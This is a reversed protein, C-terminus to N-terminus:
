SNIRNSWSCFSFLYIMIYLFGMNLRQSNRNISARVDQPLLFRTANILSRFPEPSSVPHASASFPSHIAGTEYGDHETFNISFLQCARRSIHQFIVTLFHATRLQLLAIQHKEPSATPLFFYRIMYTDVQFVPLKDM